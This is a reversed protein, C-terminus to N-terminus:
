FFRLLFTVHGYRITVRWTPHPGLRVRAQQSPQETEELSPAPVVGELRINQLAIGATVGDLPALGAPRKATHHVARRPALQPHALRGPLLATVFCLWSPPISAM